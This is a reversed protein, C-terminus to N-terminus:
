NRPHSMVKETAKTIDKTNQQNEILRFTRMAKSKLDAM